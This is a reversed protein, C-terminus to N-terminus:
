AYGRTVIIEIYQTSSLRAFDQLEVGADEGGRIRGDGNGTYEQFAKMLISSAVTEMVSSYQMTLGDKVKRQARLDTAKKILLAKLSLLFHKTRNGLERPNSDDITSQIDSAVLEQDQEEDIVRSALREKRSEKERREAELAKESDTHVTKKRVVEKKVAGRHLMFGLFDEYSLKGDGNIDYCEVLSKVQEEKVGMVFEHIAAELESIDVLGDGDLDFRAFAKKLGRQNFEYKAHLKEIFLTELEYTNAIGSWGTKSSNKLDAM